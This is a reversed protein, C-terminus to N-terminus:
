GCHAGLKLVRCIGLEVEFFSVNSTCFAPGEIAGNPYAKTEFCFDYKGNRDIEITGIEIFSGHDWQDGLTIKANGIEVGRTPLYSAGFAQSCM